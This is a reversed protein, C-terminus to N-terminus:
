RTPSSIEASFTSLFDSFFSSLEELDQCVRTVEGRVNRIIFFYTGDVLIVTEVNAMFASANPKLNKEDIKKEDSM